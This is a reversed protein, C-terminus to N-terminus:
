EWIMQLCGTMVFSTVVAVVACGVNAEVAEFFHEIMRLMIFDRELFDRGSRTVAAGISSV